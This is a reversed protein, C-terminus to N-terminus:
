IKPLFRKNCYPCRVGKRQIYLYILPHKNLSDFGSCSVKKLNTFVINDIKAIM